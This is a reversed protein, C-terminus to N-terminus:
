RESSRGAVKPPTRRHKMFGSEVVTQLDNGFQIRIYVAHRQPEEDTGTGAVLRGFDGAHTVKQFVHGELPGGLIRGVVHVANEVLHAGAVVRRRAFLDRQKVGGDQGLIERGSEFQERADDMGRQARGVEVHLFFDDELFDPHVFILRGESRVLFHHLGMEGTMRERLGNQPRGAADRRERRLLHSRIVVITVLGTVDHQRQGAVGVPVRHEIKGPFVTAVPQGAARRTASVLRFRRAADFQHGLLAANLLVHHLQRGRWGRVVIQSEGGLQQRDDDAVLRAAPEVPLQDIRPQDLHGFQSVVLVLPAARIQRIDTAAGFRRGVIECADPRNVVRHVAVSDGFRLELLRLVLDSRADHEAALSRHAAERRQASVPNVASLVPRDFVIEVRDPRQRVAVYARHEVSIRESM